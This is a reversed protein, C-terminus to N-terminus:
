WSPSSKHAATRVVHGLDDMIEQLNAIAHRWLKESLGTKNSRLMQRTQQYAHEALNRRQSYSFTNALYMEPDRHDPE